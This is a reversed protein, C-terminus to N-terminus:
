VTDSSYVHWLLHHKWIANLICYDFPLQLYKLRVTVFNAGASQIYRATKQHIGCSGSRSQYGNRNFDSFERWCQIGWTVTLFWVLCFRNINMMVECKFFMFVFIILTSWTLPRDLGATQPFFFPQCFCTNQFTIYSISTSLTRERFCTVNEISHGATLSKPM